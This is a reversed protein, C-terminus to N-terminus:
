SCGLLLEWAPIMIFKKLRYFLLNEGTEVNRLHDELYGGRGGRVTKIQGWSLVKM